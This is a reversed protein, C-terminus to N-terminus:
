LIIANAEDESLAEGAMLKTNASAKDATKKADVEIVSIRTAKNANCHTEHATTEEATMEIVEGNVMKKM